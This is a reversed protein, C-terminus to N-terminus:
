NLGGAQQHDESDIMAEFSGATQCADTLDKGCTEKLTIQVPHIGYGLDVFATIISWLAELFARKQDDSLDPDDLYPQYKELDLTLARPALTESFQNQSTTTM